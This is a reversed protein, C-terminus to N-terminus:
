LEIRQRNLSTLNESKFGWKTSKWYENIFKDDDEFYNFHVSIFSFMTDQLVFLYKFNNGHIKIAVDTTIDWERDDYSWTANDRYICISDIGGGFEVKQWKYDVIKDLIPTKNSDLKMFQHKMNLQDKGCESFKFSYYQDNDIPEDAFTSKLYFLKSNEATEFFIHTIWEYDPKSAELASFCYDVLINRLTQNKLEKLLAIGSDDIIDIRKIIKNM